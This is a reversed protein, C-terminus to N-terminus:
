LVTSAATELHLCHLTAFNNSFPDEGLVTTLVGFLFLVHSVKAIACEYHIFVLLSILFATTVPQRWYASVKLPRISPPKPLFSYPLALWMIM